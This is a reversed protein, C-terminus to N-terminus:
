IKIQHYRLAEVVTHTKNAANLKAGANQLHAHVTRQSIDLVGAIDSATRGGATLELVRRERDSLDGPRDSSIFRLRILQQIAASCFQGLQHIDEENTRINRGAGIITAQFPSVNEAPVVLVSLRGSEADAADLLQSQVVDGEAPRWLYPRTATLCVMLIADHPSVSVLDEEQHRRDPWRFRLLLNEIPRNPMPLGTILIHSAGRQRLEAEVQDLVQKPDNLHAINRAREPLDSRADM